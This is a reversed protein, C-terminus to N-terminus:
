WYCKGDAFELLEFVNRVEQILSLVQIALLRYGCIDASGFAKEGALDLVLKLAIFTFDLLIWGELKAKASDLQETCYECILYVFAINNSNCPSCQFILRSHLHFSRKSQESATAKQSTTRFFLNGNKQYVTQLWPSVIYHGGYILSIVVM